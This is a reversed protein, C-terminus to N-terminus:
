NENNRREFTLLYWNAFLEFSKAVIYLGGAAIINNQYKIQFESQKDKGIKVEIKVSRGYITSSIDATGKTMNSKVFKQSGIVKSNGLVDYVTKREDIMRGSISIREAHHGKFTLFDIICKTLGNSTRDDYKTRILGFEPLNPYKKRNHILSLDSLQKLIENM